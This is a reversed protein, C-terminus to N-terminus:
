IKELIEEMKKEIDKLHIPNTDVIYDYDKYIDTEKESIHNLAESTPVIGDRRLIRRKREEEDATLLILEGDIDKIMKMENVFRADTIYIDENIDINNRMADVWYNKNQGRRMNGWYQLLKRVKNDKHKININKLNEIGGIIEILNNLDESSINFITELDNFDKKLCFLFSSLEERLPEAFAMRKANPYIKKFAEGFTDKGSGMKGCFAIIM